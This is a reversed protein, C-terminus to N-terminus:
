SSKGGQSTLSGTITFVTQGEFSINSLTIGSFSPDKQLAKLFASLELNSPSRGSLSFTTKPYSQSRDFSIATLKIDQPTLLSIKNFVGVLDPSDEKTQKISSLQFQTQRILIEDNKLSQIYPIQDKIKDQLDGLDADLKYRLVFAGIVVIEVFVVIYKGSSLVWKLLRTYLKVQEGKHILLNVKFSNFKAPKPQTM